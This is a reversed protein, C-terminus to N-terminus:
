SVSSNSPGPHWPQLCFAPLAKTLTSASGATDKHMEWRYDACFAPKCKARPHEQVLCLLSGRPQVCFYIQTQSSYIPINGAPALAKFCQLTVASPAVQASLWPYIVSPSATPVPLLGSASPTAAPLTSCWFGKTWPLAFPLAQCPSLTDQGLHIFLLHLGQGLWQSSAGLLLLVSLKLELKLCVSSNWDEESNWPTTSKRTSNCSQLQTPLSFM